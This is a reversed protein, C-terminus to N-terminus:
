QYLLSKYRTIQMFELKLDPGVPESKKQMMVM